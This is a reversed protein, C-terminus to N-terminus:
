LARAFGSGACAMRLARQLARELAPLFPVYDAINAWVLYRISALSITYQARSVMDHGKKVKEHVRKSRKM